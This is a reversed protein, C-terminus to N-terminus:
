FGMYDNPRLMEVLSGDLALTVNPFSSGKSAWGEALEAWGAEDGAQPM